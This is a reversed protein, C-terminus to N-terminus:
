VVHNISSTSAFARKRSATAIKGCGEEAERLKSYRQLIKRYLREGEPDTGQSLRAGNKRMWLALQLYFLTKPNM